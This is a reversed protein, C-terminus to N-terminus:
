TLSLQIIFRNVESGFYHEAAQTDVRLLGCEDCM